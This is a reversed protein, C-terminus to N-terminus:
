MIYLLSCLMITEGLLLAFAAQAPDNMAGLVSEEKNKESDATEFLVGELM